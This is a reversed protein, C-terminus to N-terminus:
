AAARRDDGHPASPVAAGAREIWDGGHNLWSVKKPTYHMKFHRTLAFAEKAPLSGYFSGGQHTNLNDQVLRVCEAGDYHDAVCKMFRAYDKGAIM